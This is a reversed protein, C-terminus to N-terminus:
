PTAPVLGAARAKRGLIAGVLALLPTAVGHRAALELPADVLAGIEIPRGAEFDQLTSPKHIGTKRASEFRQEVEGDIGSGTAHALAAIERMIGLAYPGLRPDAAVECQRSGTLACLTNFAANTVLKTWVARRIDPVVVASFRAGDFLAAVREAAHPDGGPRSAGLTLQGPVSHHWANGPGRACPSYTVSGVLRQPPVARALSGDPDVARVPAAEDGFWWPVGNVVPAVLTHPGLAAAADRMAQPLSYAKTAFLVVDQVGAEAANTAVRPRGHLTEGAPTTLAIGERAVLAAYEGRALLTVPRGAASLYGALMGGIAGAGVIMVRESM